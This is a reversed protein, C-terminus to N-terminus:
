LLDDVIAPALTQREWSFELALTKALPPLMQGALCGSTQDNVWVCTKTMQGGGGGGEGFPQKVLHQESKASQQVFTQGTSVCLVTSWLLCSSSHTGTHTHTHTNWTDKSAHCVKYEFVSNSCLSM